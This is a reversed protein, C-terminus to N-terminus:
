VACRAGINIVIARVVVVYTFLAKCGVDFVVSAKVELGQEDDILYGGAALSGDPYNFKKEDGICLQKRTADVDAHNCIQSHNLLKGMRSIEFHFKCGEAVEDRESTAAHNASQICRQRLTPSECYIKVFEEWLM